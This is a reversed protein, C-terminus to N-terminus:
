WRCSEISGDEDASRLKGVLVKLMPEKGPKPICTYTSGSGKGNRELFGTAMLFRLLAQIKQVSVTKGFKKRLENGNTKKRNKKRARVWRLIELMDELHLSLANVSIRTKTAKKKDDFVVINKTKGDYAFSCETGPRDFPVLVTKKTGPDLNTEEKTVVDPADESLPRLNYELDFGMSKALAQLSELQGRLAEEQKTKQVLIIDYFKKWSSEFESLSFEM